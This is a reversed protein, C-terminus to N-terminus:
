CSINIDDVIFENHSDNKEIFINKDFTLKILNNNIFNRGLLCNCNMTNNDVVYFIINLDVPLDKVSVKTNIVGLVKLPSKNIGSLKSSVPIVILNQPVANEKIIVIPSGTDILAEITWRTTEWMVDISLM